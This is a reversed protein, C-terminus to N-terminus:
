VRTEVGYLEALDTDLMVKNGRIMLILREIRQVSIAPKAKM